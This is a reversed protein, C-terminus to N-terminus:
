DWKGIPCTTEMNKAMAPIWIKNQWCTLNKNSQCMESDIGLCISVRRNAEAKEEPSSWVADRWVKTMQIILDDKSKCGCGM